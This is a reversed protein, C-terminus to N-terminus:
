PTSRLFPLGQGGRLVMLSQPSAAADFEVEVSNHRTFFRRPAMPLLEFEVQGTGQAFLRGARSRIDLAYRADLVYRGALPLLAEAPLQMRAFDEPRIDADLGLLALSRTEVFTNALVAAGRQRAPEIWLSSSFGATAGDQNFLLRQSPRGVMPGLEWALGFPRLPHDGETRQQLCMAFADRLPHDILGVAAQMFRGLPEIPGVLGVAGALVDFSWPSVTQRDAGHGSADQARAAMMAQISAGVAAPDDTGSLPRRIRVGSLGLPGLVRSALVADLSQRSHRALVLSLLGYGLNSYEFREGRAHAPRWDRLFRHLRAENYHPYPDGLEKRGINTPMRPLGSRHAALDILRLPAGDRDRLKLGEPLGAEVPDDLAWEGRLVGDALLLAVFAKTLSGWEFVTKTSIPEAAGQRRLGLTHLRTGAPSIQVAALGVTDSAVRKHLAAAFRPDTDAPTDTAAQAALAGGLPLGAAWALWHRRSPDHPTM